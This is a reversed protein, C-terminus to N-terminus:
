VVDQVEADDLAPRTKSHLWCDASLYYAAEGGGGETM